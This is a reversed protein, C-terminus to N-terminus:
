SSAGRSRKNSQQLSQHHRPITGRIVLVSRERFDLPDVPYLTLRCQLEASFKQGRRVQDRVLVYVVSAWDVSVVDLMTGEEEEEEDAEAEEDEGLGTVNEKEKGKGTGMEKGAKRRRHLFPLISAIVGQEYRFDPIQPLAVKGAGM